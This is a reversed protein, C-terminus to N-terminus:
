TKPSGKLLDPKIDRRGHVIRHVIVTESDQNGEYIVIYPSIVYIRIENGLVPRPAGIGPFDALRQLLARFATDYKEAVLLGAERALYRLIEDQDTLAFPSVVVRAVTL